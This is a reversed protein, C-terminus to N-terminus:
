KIDKNEKKKLLAIILVGIWSFLFSYVIGEVRRNKYEGILAGVIISIVWIIIGCFLGSYDM